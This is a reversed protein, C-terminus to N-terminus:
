GVGTGGYVPPYASAGSRAASTTVRAAASAARSAASAPLAAVDCVCVADCTDSEVVVPRASRVAVSAAAARVVSASPVAAVV